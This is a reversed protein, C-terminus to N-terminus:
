EIKIFLSAALDTKLWKYLLRNLEFTENVLFKPKILINPLAVFTGAKM